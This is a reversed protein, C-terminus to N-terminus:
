ELLEHVERAASTAGQVESAEQDPKVQAGLDGASPDHQFLDGVDQVEADGRRHTGQEANGRVLVVVLSELSGVGNDATEEM